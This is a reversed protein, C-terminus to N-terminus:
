EESILGHKEVRLRLQARTLGLPRAAKEKNDGSRALTERIL